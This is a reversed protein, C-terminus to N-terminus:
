NNRLGWWYSARGARIASTAIIALGVVALGGSTAILLEGQGVKHGSGAVAAQAHATCAVIATKTGLAMVIGATSLRAEGNREFTAAKGEAMPLGSGAVSCTGVTQKAALGVLSGAASLSGFGGGAKQAGVSFDGGGGLTASAWRDNSAYYVTLAVYDIFADANNGQAQIAIGVGFDADNVLGPTLSLGWADDQGGYTAVSDSSPWNTGTAAKNDGVLNGSTNLLQVCVDRVIATAYHRKIAVGIGTVTANAPVSIGFGQCKLLYSVVGTDFNKHTLETYLGDDAGAKGTVDWAIGSYSGTSVSSESTPYRTVSAM